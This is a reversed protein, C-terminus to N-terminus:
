VHSLGEWIQKFTTAVGSDVHSQEHQKKLGDLLRSSEPVVTKVNEPLEERVGCNSGIVLKRAMFPEFDKHHIEVEEKWSKDFLVEVKRGILATGVEYKSGDLNICGVKDVDREESHLFANRLKQSDVFCM